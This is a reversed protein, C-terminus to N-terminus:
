ALFRRIISRMATDLGGPTDLRVVFAGYGEREARDLGADLHDAIIPTIPGDVTTALVRGRGAGAAGAAGTGVVAAM